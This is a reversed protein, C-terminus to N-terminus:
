RNIVKSLKSNAISVLKGLSYQQGADIVVTDIVINFKTESVIGNETIPELTVTSQVGDYYERLLKNLSEEINIVLDTPSNINSKIIEPLSKVQGLFTNSQSADAVFFYSLLTDAKKRPDTINGATDLTLLGKAMKVARLLSHTLVWESYIM